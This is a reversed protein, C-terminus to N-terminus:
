EKYKRTIYEARVEVSNEGKFILDTDINSTATSVGVISWFLPALQTWIFHDFVSLALVLGWTYKWRTKALCWGSVWLWAIGALIGAWGLQQVIVLPVNHVNLQKSFDTLNYGNGLPKINTMNDKIVAWRYGVVSVKEQPLPSLQDPPTPAIKPPADMTPTIEAVRKTHGYLEQGYGLGFWLIAVLCVPTLSIFLRKGWDKRFWVMALFIGTAFVGEPSGSLFMAVLALSVLAWQYRKVFLATGLLVYGVVIDYNKEFVLGGTVKSPSLVGSIVVGLSAIGAGIALPLFIDKGLKRALLYLSFLLSGMFLPAVKGGWTDAIIGSLGMAGVIVLLPIYIKRDGLDMKNLNDPLYFLTALGWILAGFVPLFLTAQGNISTADVLWKNHVPFLALGTGIAIAYKRDSRTLEEAKM